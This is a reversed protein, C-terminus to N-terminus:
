ILFPPTAFPRPAEPDDSVLPTFSLRGQGTGPVVVDFRGNEDTRTEQAVVESGDGAPALSVTM